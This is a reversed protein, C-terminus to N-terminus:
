CGLEPIYITKVINYKQIKSYDELVYTQCMLRDLINNHIIDLMNDIDIQKPSPVSLLKEISPYLIYNIVIFHIEDGSEHYVILLYENTNNNLNNM